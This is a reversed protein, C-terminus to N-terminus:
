FNKRLLSMSKYVNYVEKIKRFDIIKILKIGKKVEKLFHLKGLCNKM